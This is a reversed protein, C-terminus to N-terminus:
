KACLEEWEKSKKIWFELIIRKPMSPGMYPNMFSVNEMNQIDLMRKFLEIFFNLGALSVSRLIRLANKIKLMEKLKKLWM